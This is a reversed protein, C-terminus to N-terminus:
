WLHPQEWGVLLSISWVPLPWPFGFSSAFTSRHTHMISGHLSPPSRNHFLWFQIDTSEHFFNLLDIFVSVFAFNSLVFGVVSSQDRGVVPVSVTHLGVQICTAVWIVAICLLLIFSAVQFKVNDTLHILSLPLIMAFTIQFLIYVILMAHPTYLSISPPVLTGFSFLIYDSFVGNGNALMSKELVPRVLSMTLDIRHMHGMRAWWMDLRTSFQHRLDQTGCFHSSFGHESLSQSLSFLVLFPFWCREWSVQFSEILSTIILSQLAVYLVVQVAWHWRKGLFLHAITTFEISAQFEENGEISTMAEVIFLTASGTLFAILAFALLPRVSLHGPWWNGRFHISRDPIRVYAM